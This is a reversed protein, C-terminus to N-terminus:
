TNERPKKLLMIISKNKEKLKRIVELTKDTSGDNAVIIEIKKDTKQNLISEITEKIYREANYVPIIISVKIKKRPM